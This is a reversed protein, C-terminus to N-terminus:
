MDQTCSISVLKRELETFNQLPGTKHDILALTLLHLHPFPRFQGQLIKFILVCRKWHLHNNNIYNFIMTKSVTQFKITHGNNLMCYTRLSVRPLANKRKKNEKKPHKLPLIIILADINCCWNKVTLDATPTFVASLIIFQLRAASM